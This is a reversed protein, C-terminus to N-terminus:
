VEASDFQFWTRQRLPLLPFDLFIAFYIPSDLTYPSM